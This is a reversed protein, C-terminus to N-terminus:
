VGLAIGYQGKRLSLWVTLALRADQVEQETIEFAKLEEVIIECVLLLGLLIPLCLIWQVYLQKRGRAQLTFQCGIWAARM